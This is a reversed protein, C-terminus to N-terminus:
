PIIDYTYYFFQVLRVKKDAFRLYHREKCLENEDAIVYDMCRHYLRLHMVYDMCRHYLDKAQFSKVILTMYSIM